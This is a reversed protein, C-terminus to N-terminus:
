FGSGGHGQRIWTDIDDDGTRPYVRPYMEYTDLLHQKTRDYAKVPNKDSIAKLISRHEDILKLVRNKTLSAQTKKIIAESYSQTISETIFIIIPNKSVKAIECHLSVNLLRAEYRSTSVLTRAREILNELRDVDASTRIKAVFAATRPELYLRADILHSFNVKGMQVLNQFSETITESNPECVYAGANLGRKIHTLGSRQLSRLAERVTVRSVQFQEVLERESPLKEGPAYRGEL